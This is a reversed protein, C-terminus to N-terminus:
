SSRVTITEDGLTLTAITEIKITKGVGVIRGDV